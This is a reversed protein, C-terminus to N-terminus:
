NEGKKFRKVVAEVIVDTLFGILIYIVKGLAHYDVPIFNTLDNGFLAWVFVLIFTFGMRVFNDRFFFHWNWKEPKGNDSKFRNQIKVLIYFTAGILGFVMYAMLEGLPLTGLLTAIFAEM